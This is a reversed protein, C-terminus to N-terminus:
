IWWRSQNVQGEPLLLTLWVLLHFSSFFGFFARAFPFLFHYLIRLIMWACHLIHLRTWFYSDGHNLYTMESKKKIKLFYNIINWWPHELVFFSIYILSLPFKIFLFAASNIFFYISFGVVTFPFIAFIMTSSCEVECIICYVHAWPGIALLFSVSLKYGLPGVWIKPM